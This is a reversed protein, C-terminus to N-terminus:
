SRSWTKELTGQRAIESGFRKYMSGYGTKLLSSLLNVKPYDPENHQIKQFTLYESAEFFPYNGVAMQYVMVGLAWLDAPAGCDSDGLMEPSVYQATGVFTQRHSPQYDAPTNDGSFLESMRIKSELYRATGFDIAKLHGEATMMINEPKLDRHAIGHSHLYELM